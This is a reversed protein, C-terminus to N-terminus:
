DEKPTNRNVTENCCNLKLLNFGGVQFAIRMNKYLQLVGKETVLSKQLIAGAFKGKSPEPPKEIVRRTRRTTSALEFSLKKKM